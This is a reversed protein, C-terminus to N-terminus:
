GRAARYSVMRQREPDWLKIRFSSLITRANLKITIPRQLEPIGRMAAPLRYFPIRPNLHHVHHFGINGTFWRM